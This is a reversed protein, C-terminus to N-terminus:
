ILSTISSANQPQSDIKLNFTLKELIECILSKLFTSFLMNFYLSWILSPNSYFQFIKFPFVLKLSFQFNENVLSQFLFTMLAGLRFNVIYFVM